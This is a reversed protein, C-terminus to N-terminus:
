LVVESQSANNYKVDRVITKSLIEMGQEKIIHKVREITVGKTTGIEGVCAAGAAQAFLLIRKADEVSLDGIKKGRKVLESIKRIMGACFADGAGTPDIAKVNFAPQIIYKDKFFATVGNGGDTVIPFKVGKEELWKLGEKLGKQGTIGELEKVNSHLVSVFPLASHSYSWDKGYPHVLDVVTLINRHECYELLDKLMLDFDGLIGSAVYLIEPKFDQLSHMVNHYDLFINAGYDVINAKDRGKIVLIISIGTQINKVRQLTANVGKSALFRQVFDGFLDDGISLVTRVEGKFSLQRLDVAVNAPHGGLWIKIGPPVMVQEGPGPIMPLETALIDVFVFGTTMVKTLKAM